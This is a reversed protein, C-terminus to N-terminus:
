TGCLASYRFFIPDEPMGDDIWKQLEQLFQIVNAQTKTTM